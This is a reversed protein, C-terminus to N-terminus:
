VSFQNGESSADEESEDSDAIRLHHPKAIHIEAARDLIRIRNRGPHIANLEFTDAHTSM